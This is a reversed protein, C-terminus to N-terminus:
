ARVIFHRLNCGSWILSTRDVMGRLIFRHLNRNSWIQSTHDVMGRHIFHRLCTSEIVSETGQETSMKPHPRRHVSLLPQSSSSLLITNFPASFSCFLSLLPQFCPSCTVSTPTGHHRCLLSLHQQLPSPFSSM